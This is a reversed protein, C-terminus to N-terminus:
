NVLSNNLLGQFWGDDVTVLSMVMLKIVFIQLTGACFLWLSVNNIAAENNTSPEHHNVPDCWRGRHRTGWPPVHIDGVRDRLLGLTDSWVWDKGPCLSIEMHPFILCAVGVHITPEYLKSNSTGWYHACTMLTVHHTTGSSEIASRPSYHDVFITSLWSSWFISIISTLNPRHHNVGLSCVSVWLYVQIYIYIYKCINVFLCIYM